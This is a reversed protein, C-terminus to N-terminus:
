NATPPEVQDVVWYEVPGTKKSVRLGIQSQVTSILLGLGAAGLGPSVSQGDPLDAASWKVDFDYYGKLGTQDIVPQKLFLAMASALGAMTSKNGIMRGGSDSLAMGVPGEKEPPVPAEVQKVKVGGRAVELCFVPEQRIETHLKLRFRDALMARMMLRVQERNEAPSLAPFGEAPKAAVSFSREKAWDPLGVLQSSLNKINYAFGILFNLPTRADIYQGGPLVPNFGADRMLVPADPPVPRVSVVEFKPTEQAVAVAAMLLAACGSRVRSGPGM